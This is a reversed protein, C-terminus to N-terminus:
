GIRGSDHDVSDPQSSRGAPAKLHTGRRVALPVQADPNGTHM